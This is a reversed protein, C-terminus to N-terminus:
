SLHLGQDRDQERQNRDVMFHVGKWSTIGVPMPSLSCLSFERFRHDLIYTKKRLNNLDFIKSVAIFLMLLSGPFTNIM